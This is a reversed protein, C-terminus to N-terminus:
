DVRAKIINFPWPLKTTLNAPPLGSNDIGERVREVSAGILGKAVLANYLAFAAPALVAVWPPMFNLVGQIWFPLSDTGQQYNQFAMSAVAFATTLFSAVSSWQIARGTVVGPNGVAALDTATTAARQASVAAKFSPDLLLARTQPGYHGDALISPDTKRAQEQMRKVAGSMATDWVGDVLGVTHFGKAIMTRQVATIEAPLMIQEEYVKQRKVPAAKQKGTNVRAQPAAVSYPTSFQAQEGRRRSTIEPPKNWQMIATACGAKDKANFKKAFTSRAFGGQGINYCISVFADFEHQEMPELITARVTREYKQLDRAFIELAEARTIKLSPTVKPPGAASTHGVGITWVGVSDKYAETKVAEREILVNRGIESTEM